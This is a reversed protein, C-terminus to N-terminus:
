DSSGWDILERPVDKLIQDLIKQLKKRAKEGEHGTVPHEELWDNPVNYLSGDSYLKWEADRAFCRFPATTPGHVSYSQFLWPRANGTNGKLLPLISKGDMQNPMKSGTLEAITPYFDAFGVMSHVLSKPKITGLWNAIFPVRNGDDIMKGKGGRIEGRGPFPSTIRVSTGNDGTFLILTDQRLNEKELKATIKGVMKDMFHVMDRYHEGNGRKPDKKEWDPSDPTPDFPSHVLMMPYYVLFPENKKREIFDCLFDTVLDPGYKEDTDALLTGNEFLKPSKYRSGKRTFPEPLPEPIGGDAGPLIPESFHWLCYEDFGAREPGKLDGSSLQWKGAIATAYGNQKAVQAFTADEFPYTAFGDHNRFNYKGSMIKVRSPTCIPQSYAQTFRAGGAALADLHPTQYFESGYSSLCEFGIDDALIVIINPKNEATLNLSMLGGLAILLHILRIVM